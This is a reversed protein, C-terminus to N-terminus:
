YLKYFIEEMNSHLGMGEGHSPVFSITGERSTITLISEEHVGYLPESRLFDKCNVPGYIQGGFMVYISWEELERLIGIEHTVLIKNSKLEKIQDIMIRKRKPDLNELPEDFLINLSGSSIALSSYIIKQEGTSMERFSTHYLSEANFIELNRKIEETLMSSYQSYILAIDKPTQAFSFLEELNSIVCLSRRRGCEGEFEVRGNVKLVGCIAKVLSTKGSGNHGLIVSNKEIRMNLPGFINRKGYNLSLDNLFIM